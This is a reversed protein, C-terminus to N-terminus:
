LSSENVKERMVPLLNKCTPVTKNEVYFDEVRSTVMCFNFNNIM